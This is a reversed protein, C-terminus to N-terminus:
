CRCGGVDPGPPRKLPRPQDVRRVEMLVAEAGREIQGDKVYASFSLAEVTRGIFGGKSVSANIFPPDAKQAMESLRANIIGFYLGEALQRRYDGVTTVTRAPQKIFISIDSSTAEHDTTIALLPTVNNPVAAETRPRPNAVQKVGSFHKKILGEITPVDFDGVAIVAMLDPRYWDEYFKRLISPQAAMISEQTGIPIRRAYKSDKLVVPIGAHLMREGAGLGARWEEQVVGRENAVETSDFIQGHAWDELILFAQEILRATDTPISLQYVTEDFSTYANLDAGFRVGISQLYKVLDNKRFNRTGNFATHEVFHAYGLQNDDENISGANIALRLEARKAPETNKRIYYRIGNPLTGILSAPDVGLKQSLTVPAAQQAGAYFAPLVFLAGAVIRLFSRHM